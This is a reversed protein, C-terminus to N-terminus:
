ARPLVAAAQFCWTLPPRWRGARVAAPAAGSRQLPAAATPRACAAATAPRRGQGGAAGWCATWSSSWAGRAATAASAAAARRRKSEAHLPACPLPARHRGRQHRGARARADVPAHPAGAGRMRAARRARRACGEGFLLRLVGWRASTRRPSGPTESGGRYSAAAPPAPPPPPPPQEHPCASGPMCACGPRRQQPRRRRAGLRGGCAAGPSLESAAGTHRPLVLAGPAAAGAGGADSGGERPSQLAPPLPSSPAREPSSWLQDAPLRPANLIAQLWLSREDATRAALEWARGGGGGSGGGGGGSAPRLTLTWCYLGGEAADHCVGSVLAGELPGGGAPGGAAGADRFYAISAGCPGGGEGGRM